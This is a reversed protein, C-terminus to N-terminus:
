VLEKCFIYLRDRFKEVDANLPFESTDYIDDFGALLNALIYENDDGRVYKLIGAEYQEKLRDAILGHKHLYQLYWVLDFAVLKMQQENQVTRGATSFYQQTSIDLPNSVAAGWPAGEASGEYAVHEIYAFADEGIKSVSAPVNLNLNLCGKFAWDGISTLGAGLKLDKLATCGMFACAEIEKANNLGTVKELRECGAFLGSKVVYKERPIFKVSELSICNAFIENTLTKLAAPFAIEGSLSSCGSFASAGIRALEEPLVFADLSICNEFAHDGISKLNTLATQNILKLKSCCSFASSGIEKLKAGDEFEVTELSDCNAFALGDIVETSAPIKLSVLSKCNIFASVYICNLNKPLVVEELSTCYSFAEDDILTVSDPIVVKKLSSCFTFVSISVNELGDPLNIEELKECWAFAFAGIKEVHSSMTIKELNKCMKFANSSITRVKDGVLLEKLDAKQRGYKATFNDDIMTLSIEDSTGDTWVFTTNDSM